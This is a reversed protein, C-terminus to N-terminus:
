WVTYPRTDSLFKEADLFCEAGNKFVRVQTRHLKLLPRLKKLCTVFHQMEPRYHGSKATVVQLRGAKVKWEGAGKVPNGELFSSHHFRGIRHSGTYFVDHRSLVFIAWGPGSEATSMAATDVPQSAQFLLAGDKIVRYRKRAQEDLYAVGRIMTKVKSTSINADEWNAYKAVNAIEAQDRLSKQGMQFGKRLLAVVGFEGLGNLWEFFPQPPQIERYKALCALLLDGMRHRSDIKELNYHESALSRLPDGKPQGVTAQQRVQMQQELQRHFTEWVKKKHQTVGTGVLSEMHNDFACDVEVYQGYNPVPADCYEGYLFDNASVTTAPTPLM